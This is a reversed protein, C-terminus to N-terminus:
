PAAGRPRSAAAPGAEGLVAAYIRTLDAAFRPPEFNEAYGNRLEARAAALREPSAALAQLHDALADADGAPYLWGTRGDQVLEPTGGTASAVLPLGDVITECVWISCPEPDVRCQLGVDYGVQLRRLETTFGLFRVADGAGEAEVARRMESCYPNDELPGGYADLVADVGRRRAALVAAVAVHIGKSAAMRGAVVCRLRGPVPPPPADGGGQPVAANRVVEVRSGRGLWNEAIFGSVAVVRTAGIRAMLRNLRPGLGALRRPNMNNHIHWVTAFGHRRLFVALVQQPLWHSHVVRVGRERFLPALRSAVRRADLLRGPLRLLVGLSGASGFNRQGEVLSVDAGAAWLARYLPGDEFCFHQIGELSQECLLVVTGVGYAEDGQSLMAVQRALKPPAEAMPFTM